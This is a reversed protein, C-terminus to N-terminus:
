NYKPKGDATRLHIFMKKKKTKKKKYHPIFCVYLEVSLAHQAMLVHEVAVYYEICATGDIFKVTVRL